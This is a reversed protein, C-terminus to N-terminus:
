PAAVRRQGAVAHWYRAKEIDAPVGDGKGYMQVLRLAADVNGM